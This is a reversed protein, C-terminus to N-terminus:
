QEKWCRCLLEFEQSIDHVTSPDWFTSMLSSSWLVGPAFCYLSLELDRIVDQVEETVQHYLTRRWVPLGPAPMMSASWRWTVVTKVFRTDHLTVMTSSRRPSSALHSQVNASWPLAERYETQRTGITSHRNSQSSQRWKVTTPRWSVPGVTGDRSKDHLKKGPRTMGSVWFSTSWHSGHGDGTM